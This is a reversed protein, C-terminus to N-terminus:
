TLFPSVYKIALVEKYDNCGEIQDQLKQRNGVLLAIAQRYATNKELVKAVLTDLEIGRTQALIALMPCESPDHSTSYKKAEEEQITWSLQEDSPIIEGKISICEQEFMANIFELKRARYEEISPQIITQTNPEYSMGVEVWQTQEDSLPIAHISNEDWESLSEQTFLQSVQNNSDIIAYTIGAQAKM